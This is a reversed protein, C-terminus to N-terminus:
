DNLWDYDPIPSPEVSANQRMVQSTTTQWARYLYNELSHLKRQKYKLIANLFTEVFPTANDEIIIDNHISRKARLLIGYYKYIGEADFYREMADYIESPLSSKLAKSPIVSTDLVNNKSLNISNFPENENKTTQTTTETPAEREERNSLTSQDNRNFPLVRLINAGKGGNVKRMTAVKEIIGLEALKNVIRRATKESKDILKALTTAKLHAAGAFKVAYRAITNLAARDTDNLSFANSKLHADVNANLEQTSNFTQYDSLYHM